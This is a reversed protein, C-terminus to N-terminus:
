TVIKFVEAEYALELFLAQFYLTTLSPSSKMITILGDLIIQQNSGIQTSKSTSRFGNYVLRLSTQILGCSLDWVTTGPNFTFGAYAVGVFPNARVNRRSKIGYRSVAYNFRGVMDESGQDTECVNCQRGFKVEDQGLWAVMAGDIVTGVKGDSKTALTVHAVKIPLQDLPPAMGLGYRLTSRLADSIYANLAVPGGGGGQFHNRMLELVRMRTFACVQRLHLTRMEFQDLSRTAEILEEILILKLARAKDNEKTHTDWQAFLSNLRQRYVQGRDKPGDLLIDNDARFAVGWNQAGVCWALECMGLRFGDSLNARSIVAHAEKRVVPYGQDSEALINSDIGTSYLDESAEGFRNGIKIMRLSKLGQTKANRVTEVGNCAACRTPNHLENRKHNMRLAETRFRTIIGPEEDCLFNDPM